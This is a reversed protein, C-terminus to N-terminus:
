KKPYLDNWWQPQEKLWKDFWALITKTWIKRKSYTMILHNQGMIQVYEVPKGLLKLATFLETSEGTPVNTDATGHLLLLPTNIKDASFLASRDVYIDKHNWPFSNATAVASYLYGWFGEGWYYSISSIGAHSIATAFLDTQTLLYMTLFGGYSAGIAGVRNKDVFPHATLFQSVGKNVDQTSTKGWDNVHLASFEQGFGVAGSPQLVYVVYGNAAWYNKPYRGGFDRSVPTTGGYYYVICPYKKGPNFDPPYYIRGDITRNQENRFSWSEVKGFKVHKFDNEAPDSLLRNKEKKLDLIFAKKPTAASSGTYVAVAKNKSFAVSHVVDTGTDIASFRNNQLDFRFLRRYAHDTTLFYITNESPWFSAEISPAFTKSIPRVTQKSLDMLYAQGDYENPMMGAPLHHGSDGFMSPGGLLLLSKGDPSWRASNFWKGQWITDAELSLLDLLLLQTETYPRERFNEITRYFLLKKGDPSVAELATTLNGATLRQRTGQPINVLYLFTHDRGWPWRERPSNLRQM